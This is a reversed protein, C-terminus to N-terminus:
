MEVVTPSPGKENSIVKAPPDRGLQSSKFSQFASAMAASFLQFSLPNGAGVVAGASEAELVVVELVM